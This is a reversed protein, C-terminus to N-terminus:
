DAFVRTESVGPIGKFVSSSIMDWELIAKLKAELEKIENLM